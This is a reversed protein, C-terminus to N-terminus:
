QVVYEELLIDDINGTSLHQNIVALLDKRIKDTNDRHRLFVSEQNRLYYYIGDRIIMKKDKIERAIEESKAPLSFRAQLFQISDQDQLEVMFADLHIIEEFPVEMEVYEPMQDAVEKEEPPDEKDRLLFFLVAALLILVLILAALIIKRNLWPKTVQAEEAAELSKQGPERQQTEEFIEEEEEELFPADDLDLEVKDRSRDIDLESNDLKVKEDASDNETM